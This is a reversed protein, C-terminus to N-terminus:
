ARVDGRLVLPATQPHLRRHVRPNARPGPRVTRAPGPQAKRHLPLECRLRAPELKNGRHLSLRAPLRTATATRRRRLHQPHRARRRQHRLQGRFHPRHSDVIAGGENGLGVVGDNIDYNAESILATRDNIRWIISQDVYNRAVSNEPRTPSFYGNTFRVSTADNFVGIETDLTLVDVNRRGKGRGRKTQFRQRVGVSFGDIEDINEVTPTFPFLERSDVNTHSAWATFDAKIIHRLGHIDFMESSADPYVKWLYMSGRLGYTGFTRLHEDEILTDEWASLRGSVFPVIRLPGLDLVHEVEQRTDFRVTTGSSDRDGNRLFQRFSQDGPRYRVVGLRNESYLPIARATVPGIYHFSFDPLSETQTTWDLIRSQLLATLAWNDRQKKLYLLTEQKKGNDFEKEFFEELFGRDSIYSLELSLQWDDELYQRHRVLFRGRAGSYGKTERERGLNDEGSDTLLYSKIEGFSRDRKYEVNVGAAPGRETYLDLNLSGDVGDPTELGLVSFLRWRSEFEAGFDDSYGLRLSRISTAGTDISGAAFPWYFVPTNGVNITAHRIRFTGASPTRRQGSPKTPTRNIMEIRRAGVHYHPTHFESTTLVAHEASFQRTSLQRIEAARLYVPINLPPIQTSIVADLILAREHFLDYYLRSARIVNPGQALVIDGELYIAEAPTSGLLTVVTPADQPSDSRGRPRQSTRKAGLGAASGHPTEETQEGPSPALFLVGSDARIELYDEQGYTGRTVHVGSPITYVQLGSVDRLEMVGPSDMYFHQRPKAVDGPALGTVDVVALPIRDDSDLRDPRNIKSRFRVAELYVPSDASSQFGVEDADVHMTGRSNITVLLAPGETITGGVEHVVADQWLLIEFHHYPGQAHERPTIWVVAERAMLVLDHADGLTIRANGVVHVVETAEGEKFLYAMEGDITLPLKSIGSPLLPTRVEDGLPVPQQARVIGCCALFLAAGVARSVPMRLPVPLEREFLTDSCFVM